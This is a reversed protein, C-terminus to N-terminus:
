ASTALARSAVRVHSSAGQRHGGSVRCCNGAARLPLSSAWTARGLTDSSPTRSTQRAIAARSPLPSTCSAPRLTQSPVRLTCSPPPSTHSPPLSSRRLSRSPQARGCRDAVCGGLPVPCARPAPVKTGAPALVSPHSPRRWHRVVSPGHVPRVLVATTSARGRRSAAHGAHDVAPALSVLRRGFATRGVRARLVFGGGVASPRRGRRSSSGSGVGM